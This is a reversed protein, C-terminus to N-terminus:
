CSPSSLHMPLSIGASLFHQSPFSEKPIQQSGLVASDEQRRSSLAAGGITGALISGGLRRSPPAPALIPDSGVPDQSDAPLRGAPPVGFLEKGGTLKSKFIERCQSPLPQLFKLHSPFGLGPVEQKTVGWLGPSRLIKEARNQCALQSGRAWGVGVQENCFLPVQSMGGLGSLTGLQSEM